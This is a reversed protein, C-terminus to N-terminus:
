SKVVDKHNKEIHKKMAPLKMFFMPCYDCQHADSPIIGHVSAKHRKLMFGNCIEQGCIECKVREHMNKKHWRLSTMTGYSRHCSDCKYPCNEMHKNKIHETLRRQTSVIKDCHPCKKPEPKPKHLVKIPENSHKRKVHQELSSKNMFFDSCIDCMFQEKGRYEPPLDKHIFKYHQILYRPAKFDQNCQSCHMKQPTKEHKNTIHNQLSIESLFVQSCQDCIYQDRDEMGPPLGGHHNRFHGVLYRLASFEQGCKPCTVKEKTGSTPKTLGCHHKKLMYPYAFTAKCKECSYRSPKHSQAIHRKMWSQTSAEYDCLKCKIAEAPKKSHVAKQHQKINNKTIYKGCKVQNNHKELMHARLHISTQFNENCIICDIELLKGSEDVHNTKEHSGRDSKSSFVEQCYDCSFTDSLCSQCVKSENVDFIDAFPISCKMCEIEPLKGDVDVHAQHVHDKMSDDSEFAERCIPCPFCEKKVEQDNIDSYHDDNDVINMINDENEVDDQNVDDDVEVLPEIQMSEEDEKISDDAKKFTNFLAASKPHNQVAHAQFSTEEQSRYVCEPCCLFSFSYVNEVQWPNFSHTYANLM